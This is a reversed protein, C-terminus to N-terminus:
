VKRKFTTPPKTKDKANTTVFTDKDKWEITDEDKPIKAIAEPTITKMQEEVFKKAAEDADPAATMKLDKPTITMKNGDIKYEATASMQIGKPVDKGKIDGSMTTTGDDKFEAVGNDMEPNGEVTWTGVVSNTSNDSTTAPAASADPTKAATSDPAPTATANDAPKCGVIM